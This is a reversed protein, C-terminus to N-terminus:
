ATWRQARQTPMPCGSYRSVLNSMAPTERCFGSHRGIRGRRGNQNYTNAVSTFPKRLLDLYVYAPDGDDVVINTYSLSPHSVVSDYNLIVNTNFQGIINTATLITYVTNSGFIIQRVDM